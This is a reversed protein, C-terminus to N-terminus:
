PSRIFDTTHLGSPRPVMRKSTSRGEDYDQLDDNTCKDLGLQTIRAVIRNMRQLAGIYSCADTTSSVIM